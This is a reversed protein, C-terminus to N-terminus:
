IRRLAHGHLRATRESEVVCNVSLRRLLLSEYLPVNVACCVVNMLPALVVAAAHPPVLGRLERISTVLTTVPSASHVILRRIHLCHLAQFACEHLASHEYLWRAKVLQQIVSGLPQLPQRM